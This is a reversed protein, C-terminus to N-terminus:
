IQSGAGPNVIGLRHISLKYVGNVKTGTVLATCHMGRYRNGKIHWMSSM